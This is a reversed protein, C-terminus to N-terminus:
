ARSYKVCYRWAIMVVEILTTVTMLLCNKIINVLRQSILRSPLQAHKRDDVNTLCSHPQVVCTIRWNDDKVKRAHVIWSCGRHCTIVYLKNEDSYKVMFPRHHFMTYEALWIKMAEMNRFIIGKQIIINDLNILPVSVNFRLGDAVARHAQSLDWYDPM